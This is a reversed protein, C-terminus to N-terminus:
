KSNLDDVSLASIPMRKRKEGLFDRKDFSIMKRSVSVSISDVNHTATIVTEDRSTETFDDDYASVRTFHEDFRAGSIM